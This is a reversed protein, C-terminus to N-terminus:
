LYRADKSPRFAQLYQPKPCKAQHPLLPANGRVSSALPEFGRVEVANRAGDRCDHRSANGPGFNIPRSGIVSRSALIADPRQASEIGAGLPCAGDGPARGRSQLLGTAQGITTSGELVVLRALISATRIM